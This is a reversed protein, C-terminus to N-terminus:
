NAAPPSRVINQVKATFVLTKGALLSNFDLIVSTENVGIIRAPGYITIVRSGVNPNLTLTINEKNATVKTEGFVTTISSNDEPDYRFTVTDNSVALVMMPWNVEYEKPNPLRFVLGVKPEVGIETKFREFGVSQVRPSVQKRPLAQILNADPYGYAKEPPLTFTKEEGVRMGVVAAEFGPVLDGKGIQFVLPTYNRLPNFIGNRHAADPYSTDFVTGNEFKGIYDVLVVDGNQVVESGISPANPTALPSAGTNSSYGFYYALLGGVAIVIILGLIIKTNKDIAGSVEGIVGASLAAEKAKPKASSKRAGGAKKVSAPAKRHTTKRAARASDAKSPAPSATKLPYEATQSVADRGGAGDSTDGVMKLGM